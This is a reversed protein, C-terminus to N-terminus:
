LIYVHLPVKGLAVKPQPFFDCWGFKV